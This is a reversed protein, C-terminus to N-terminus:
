LDLVRIVELGREVIFYILFASIFCVFLFPPITPLVVGYKINTCEYSYEESVSNTETLGPVM